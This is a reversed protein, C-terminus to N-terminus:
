QAAASSPARYSVWGPSGPLKVLNQVRANDPGSPRRTIVIPVPGAAAAAPPPATFSLRTVYPAPLGECDNRTSTALATLDRCPVGGVTVSEIEDLPPFQGELTVTSPADPALM